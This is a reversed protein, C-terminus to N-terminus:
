TLRQTSTLFDIYDGRSFDPTFGLSELYRALDPLHEAAEWGTCLKQDYLSYDVRHKAPTLNPMLVNAGALLGKERGKEDVTGLATTAPLLTKPLMIRLLSLVTLTRSSNPKYYDAFVTDKHPIFPGVGIMHPKFEKLFIFDEALTELSQGPSNVMFGAGVQYGIEKLNYLCKKRSSLSLESPHLLAYHKENATEHRLLYRDAGAKFLSKYSNYSREGCALTVACDAFLEKIQSVIKCLLTDSFYADEGSQLVFTRFGLKYGKRCCEMIEEQTLRYRKAKSNSRQLGCYFCNNQCYNSFEILGRFFVKSGYYKERLENAWLSLAARKEATAPECYYRFLDALEKKGATNLYESLGKGDKM